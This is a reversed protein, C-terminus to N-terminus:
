GANLLAQIQGTEYLRIVASWQEVEPRPGVPPLEPPVEQEPSRTCAILLLVLTIIPLSPRM